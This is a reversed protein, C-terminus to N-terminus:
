DGRRFEILELTSSKVFGKSQQNLTELSNLMGLTVGTFPILKPIDEFLTSFDNELGASQWQHSKNNVHSYETDYVSFLFYLNILFLITLIYKKM